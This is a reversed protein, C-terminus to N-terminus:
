EGQSTHWTPNGMPCFHNGVGKFDRSRPLKIKALVLAVVGVDFITLLFLCQVDSRGNFRAFAGNVQREERFLGRDGNCTEYVKRVFVEVVTKVKVANNTVEHNLATAWEASSCTARAITEFVFEVATQPM